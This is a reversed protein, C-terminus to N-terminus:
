EMRPLKKFWPTAKELQAALRFLTAEDGFSGIFQSGLPLNEKTWYLPVSMAPLGAFNALQTFPTRKLNETALKNVIGSAKLLGGAGLANVVKMAGLEAGGPALEGIKAPLAAVTPTLYCDYREFFSGMVRGAHGWLRIAEVFEDATFTRGLLGLTRTVIEIENKRPKRGILERIEAIDAAVEGFYMMFYSQALQTGDLDPETEEVTHGLKELLKATETVAKACEPDVVTGLPSRTTFAIVLKGPKRRVEDLDPREPPLITEPAGTDPGRAADLMAASDRVSRTLVHDIAAGQWNQGHVPGTPMRGRTPKLGFLGCYCSPIRISGGGDNGHALPVIGAAVAAASGGSSGGPTRELDWPNRTPGFLEPETIGMLGFEPLNTKGMIVLGSKKYRRVIESDYDPVYDKLARCGMAMPVGAYAAHLDKLLFPVGTFPGRPLRDDISKRAQEYMPYIVANLVPNLKDFRAIAEDLLESPKVKKKIVLDALGLGDYNEYNKIGAM